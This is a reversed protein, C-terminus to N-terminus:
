DVKQNKAWEARRKASIAMVEDDSFWVTQPDNAQRIGEEEQERIPLHEDATM